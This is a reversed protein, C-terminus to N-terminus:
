FGSGEEDERNEWEGCEEKAPCSACDDPDPELCQWGHACLFTRDEANYWDMENRGRYMSDADPFRTCRIRLFEADECADTRQAILKAQGRTEAFVVTCGGEYSDLDEVIWAKM